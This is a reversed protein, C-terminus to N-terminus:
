ENRGGAAAQNEACHDCLFVTDRHVGGEEEVDVESITFPSCTCEHNITDVCAFCIPCREVIGRDDDLPNRLGGPNRPGWLKCDTCQDVRCYLGYQGFEAMEDDLKSAIADRLSALEMVQKQSKALKAKLAKFQIDKIVPNQSLQAAGRCTSMFMGMTGIDLRKVVDEIQDNPVGLM